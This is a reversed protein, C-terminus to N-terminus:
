VKLMVKELLAIQAIHELLKNTATTLQNIRQHHSFCTILVLSTEFPNSSFTAASM